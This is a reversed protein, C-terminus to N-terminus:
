AEREHTASEVLSSTFLSQLVLLRESGSVLIAVAVVQKADIHDVVVLGLDLEFMCM